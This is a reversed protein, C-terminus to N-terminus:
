AHLQSHADELLDLGFQRAGDATARRGATEDGPGDIVPFAQSELVDFSPRHEAPELMIVRYRRWGVHPAACLSYDPPDATDHDSLQIVTDGHGLRRQGHAALARVVPEPSGPNPDDLWHWETM